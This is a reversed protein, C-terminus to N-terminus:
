RLAEIKLRVGEQGVVRVPSGAPLDPGIVLWLSDGAKIKGRGSIIAEHLNFSRGIFEQGRQNLGPQDCAKGVMRQRRWWFLATLISLSGFLVFQWAWSLEPFLYLLLGVITAALGTWLLYGGVGFVEFILLLSGLALWDWHSLHQLYDGM